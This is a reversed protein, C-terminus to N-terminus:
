LCSAKVGAMAKFHIAAPKSRTAIMCKIELDKIIILWLVRCQITKTFTNKGNQSM